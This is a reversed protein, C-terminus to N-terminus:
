GNEPRHRKWYDDFENQLKKKRHPKDMMYATWLLIYDKREALILLYEQSELWLCIRNEGHRENKWIKIGSEPFNKIIIPRPWRIRECRRMDPLRESEINGESILHWFTAEKGESLPYRKLAIRKGEFTLRGTMFDKKFFEYLAEVYCQWDGGHDEFVVLPPLWSPMEM